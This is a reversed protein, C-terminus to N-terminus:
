DSIVSLLGSHPHLPQQDQTRGSTKMDLQLQVVFHRSRTVISLCLVFSSQQRHSIMATDDLVPPKKSRPCFLKQLLHKCQAVAHSSFFFLFQLESLLGHGEEDQFNQADYAFRCKLDDRILLTM